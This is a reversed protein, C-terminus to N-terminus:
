LLESVLVLDRITSQYEVHTEHERTRWVTGENQKMYERYAPAGPFRINDAVAVGGRRLWNESLITQLDPLYADKHHDLFVFDLSGAAFGQEDRLKRVTTGGDGLSGVVARVRDGVGAHRWVRSSIDANSANIEVSVIEADPAVVAMRLASYGCYAGLELVRRANVNRLADDLIEGKEDGVNILYSENYAYEDIVRIADVPDGPRAHHAVYEALREERGDGVQWEKVLHKMGFIMRLFSWRFFPVRKTLSPM